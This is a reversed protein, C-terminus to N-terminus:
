PQAARSSIEVGTQPDIRVKGVRISALGRLDRVTSLVTWEGSREGLFAGTGLCLGRADLFGLLSGPGAAEAAYVPMGTVPIKLEGAGAFGERFSSRRHEQREVVSRKRASQAVPMDIIRMFGEKRLPSLIPELEDGRQIAVVSQPRLMQVKWEKLAVGAQGRVMGTTDVVTTEAGGAQSLELLRRLGVLMPLMHGRPTTSGVFFAFRKGGHGCPSGPGGPLVVTMTGPMGIVTQGIDGDLRAPPRGRGELECALWETFTSKGADGEGLVLVTGALEDLAIRRWLDPVEISPKLM